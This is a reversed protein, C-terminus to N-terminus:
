SLASNSRYVRYGAVGLLVATLLALLNGFLAGSGGTNPVGVNPGFTLPPENDTITGSGGGSGGGGSGGGNNPRSGSSGGGGGGGSNDTVTGTLSGSNGPVVTGSLTGSNAVVTGSLTSSGNSGVTGTIPSGSGGTLNAGSGATLTGTVESAFAPTAIGLAM